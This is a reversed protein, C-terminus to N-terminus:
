GQGDAEVEKEKPAKPRIRICTKTEGFAFVETPYLTIRKGIWENTEFGHIKAIIMANTKNLVLRKEKKGKGKARTEVFYLIPKREDDGDKVKMEEVQLDAITLDVDREKLDAASLYITPFLLRCDM